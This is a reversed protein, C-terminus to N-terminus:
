KGSSCIWLWKLSIPTCMHLQTFSRFGSLTKCFYKHTQLVEKLETLINWLVLQYFPADSGLFNVTGLNKYLIIKKQSTLPFVRGMYNGTNNGGLQKWLFWVYPWIRNSNRSSRHCFSQCSSFNKSKWTFLFKGYIPIESGFSTFGLM